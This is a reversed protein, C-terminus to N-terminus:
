PTKNGRSRGGITVPRLWVGIATPAVTQAVVGSVLLGLRSMEVENRLSLAFAEVTRQADYRSRNFRRDTSDQIRQRLPQFLVFAVLTSAAIAIQGGRGILPALAAQLVVFAVGSIAALTVTLVTYSVTRSIIRDIAYLRYRLVAAAVAIPVLALWGVGALDLPTFGESEPFFATDVFSLPLLIAFAGVAALFWKLQERAEGQSRRFRLGVAIAGLAIVVFTATTALPLALEAIARVLPQEVGIPNNALGEELPGPKVSAVGVALLQIAVVAQMPRKWRPSPLAGDPFLLALLGFLLFTLLLSTSGFWALIMAWPDTPGNAITLIAGFFFGSFTIDIAPGALLLLWGIRNAPQRLAILAGMSAFAGADLSLLTLPITITSDFLTSGVVMAIGSLLTAAWVLAPLIERARRRAQRGIPTRDDASLLATM